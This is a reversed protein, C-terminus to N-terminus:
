QGRLQPVPMFDTLPVVIPVFLKGGAGDDILLADDPGTAAGSMTTNAYKLVAIRNLTGDRLGEPFSHSVLGGLVSYEMSDVTARM